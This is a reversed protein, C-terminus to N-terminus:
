VEGAARPARPVLQHLLVQLALANKPPNPHKTRATFASPQQIGLVQNFAAFHIGLGSVQKIVTRENAFEQSTNLARPQSARLPADQPSRLQSPVPFSSAPCSRRRRKKRAATLTQQCLHSRLPPHRPAPPQGQATGPRCGPVPRHEPFGM